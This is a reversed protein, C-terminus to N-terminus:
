ANKDNKNFKKNNKNIKINKLIIKGKSIIGRKNIYAM